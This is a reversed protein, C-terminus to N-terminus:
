DNEGEIDVWRLEADHVTGDEPVFAELQQIILKDYGRNFSKRAKAAGPTQYPGEFSVYTSAEYYSIKKLRFIDTTDNRTQRGM